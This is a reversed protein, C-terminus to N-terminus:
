VGSGNDFWARHASNTRVNRAPVRIDRCDRCVLIRSGDAATFPCMSNHHTRKGCDRCNYYMKAVQAELSELNIEVVKKM